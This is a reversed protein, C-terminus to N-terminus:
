FVAGWILMRVVVSRCSPTGIVNAKVHQCAPAPRVSQFTALTYPRRAVSMTLWAKSPAQLLERSRILGQVASAGNVWADRFHLPRPVGEAYRM